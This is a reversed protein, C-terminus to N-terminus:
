AGEDQGEARGASQGHTELDPAGMGEGLGLLADACHTGAIRTVTECGAEQTMDPVLPVARRRPEGDVSFLAATLDTLATSVEPDQLSRVPAQMWSATELSLMGAVATALVASDMATAPLDPRSDHPPWCPSGPSRGAATSLPQAPAPPSIPSRETGLDALLRTLSSRDPM